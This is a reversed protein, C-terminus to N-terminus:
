VVLKKCFDETKLILIQENIMDRNTFYALCEDDIDVNIITPLDRISIKHLYSLGFTIRIADILKNIHYITNLIFARAVVAHDEENEMGNIPFYTVFLATRLMNVNNLEVDYGESVTNFVTSMEAFNYKSLQQLEDKVPLKFPLIFEAQIKM